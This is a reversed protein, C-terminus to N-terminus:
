RMDYATNGAAARFPTPHYGVAATIAKRLSCGDEHGKILFQRAGCMLAARRLRRNQMGSYVLIPTDPAEATLAAVSAVGDMDALNLDLLIVDFAEEDLRRFADILRPVSTIEAEGLGGADALMQELLFVDSPCDEVVLVKNNPHWTKM